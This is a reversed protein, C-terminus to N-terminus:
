KAFNVSDKVVTMIMDYAWHEETLDSYVAEIDKQADIKLIRNIVTVVEARTVDDEPRFSGDPDGVIYGLKSMAGIYKAAWHGSEVDAFSTQTETSIDLNLASVIMKVFEARTIGSTGGFTKNPYGDIISTAAFKNVLQEYEKTVDSFGNEIGADEINMVENLAAIVEYRTAARDPEFASSSVTAMYRIGSVDSKFEALATKVKYNFISATSSKGDKVAVVKVTADASLRIGDDTYLTGNSESPETGDTTYYLKAGTTTCSIKIKTGKYITSGTKTNATPASVSSTGGGSPTLNVVGGGSIRAFKVGIEVDDTVTFTYTDGSNDIEVGDVYWAEIRYRSAPTATITVSSNFMQEGIDGEITGSGGLVATTITKIGARPVTIPISVTGIDTADALSKIKFEVTVTQESDKPSIKGDLGIVDSDSTDSIEIEYGEPVIPLTLSTENQAVPINTGIQDAVDQSTMTNAYITAAATLPTVPSAYVYNDKDTGSLTVASDSLTVTRSGAEASDFELEGTIEVVVDDGDVIGTGTGKPGIVLASPNNTAVTTGDANKGFVGFSSIGVPRKAVVLDAGVNTIEYNDSSIGSVTIPYTGANVKGSPVGGFEATGFLDAEDDGNVFGDYEVSIAPLAEGYIGEAAAKVRATLPAKSIVLEKVDEARAYEDNGPEAATINVRGAGIITIVGADSVTAVREDSSAYAFNTLGSEADGTVSVSFPADGYTKEGFAALTITQPTKDVISYTGETFALDYKSSDLALTGQKIKYDGVATGAERILAGTFADEGVLTGSTIDYKLDEEPSGVKVVVDKAKVAIRRKNVVLTRKGVYTEYTSNGEITASLETTGATKISVKGTAADIAAVSPDSSSYTVSTLGSEADPTCVFDFDADGYESTEPLASVSAKQIKKSTITFTGKTFTLEYNSPVSLTGQNIDYTGAEEGAVRTLEGSFDDSGYFTGSTKTYTFKAPDSQGVYKATDDAKVAIPAKNIVLTGNASGSYGEETVEAVVSYSGANTPVTTSGNYKVTYTVTDDSLTVKAGQATGNYTKTLESLAVNVPIVLDPNIKVTANEATNAVNVLMNSSDFKKLTEVIVTVTTTERKSVTNNIKFKYGFLTGNGVANSDFKVGNALVATKGDSTTANPNANVTPFALTGSVLGGEAVSVPTLYSSDYQLYIKFQAIGDTNGSVNVPVTIEDGANGKVENTVADGGGIVVDAAFAINCCLSLVMAVALIISLIKKTMKNVEMKYKILM